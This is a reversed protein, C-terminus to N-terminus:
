AEAAADAIAKATEATAKRRAYVSEKMYDESVLKLAETPCVRVCAPGNGTGVCLDCKNAVVRRSGDNQKTGVQAIMDIVGFPCAQM